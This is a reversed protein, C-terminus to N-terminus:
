PNRGVAVPRDPDAIWQSWSGAYLKAGRMGIHELALLSHNSTVGSGCYFVVDRIDTDGFLTEYRERLADISKYCGNEDMNDAYPASVAGPIHGAVPDIPETEGRYREGARVDVLHLDPSHLKRQIDETSVVEGVRPSAVFTRSPRTEMGTAVPYGALEWQPWGGNLVAVEDHGQQRLMWWLRSAIAGGMNDYAVVQVGDGIGWASLTRAFDEPDPLPHRGTVGPIIASSLDEDLHAYVAGPVHAALYQTRGLPPDALSFRCDIVAWSDDGYYQALEQASILTSYAM